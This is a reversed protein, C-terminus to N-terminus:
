IILINKNNKQTKSCFILIKFHPRNIRSGPSQRPSIICSIFESVRSVIEGQPHPMKQRKSSFTTGYQPANTQKPVTNLALGWRYGPTPPDTNVKVPAYRCRINHNQKHKFKAIIRVLIDQFDSYAQKYLAYL